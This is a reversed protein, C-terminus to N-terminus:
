KKRLVNESPLPEKMGFRRFAMRNKQLIIKTVGIPWPTKFQNACDIKDFIVKKPSTYVRISSRYAKQGLM